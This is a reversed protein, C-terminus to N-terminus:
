HGLPLGPAAAGLGQEARSKGAPQGLKCPRRGDVAAFCFLVAYCILHARAWGRLLFRGGGGVHSASYGRFPFKREYEFVYVEVDEEGEAPPGAAQAATEAAGRTPTYVGDDRHVAPGQQPRPATPLSRSDAGGAGWGEDGADTDDLEVGDGGGEGGAAAAAAELLGRGSGDDEEDALGADVAAMQAQVVGAARRHADPTAAMGAAADDADPAIIQSAAAAAGGGPEPMPADGAGPVAAM